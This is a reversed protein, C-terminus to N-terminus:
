HCRFFGMLSNRNDRKQKRETDNSRSRNVVGKTIQQQPQSLRTTTIGIMSVPQRVRHGTPPPSRQTTTPRWVESQQHHGPGYTLSGQQQPKGIGLQNTSPTAKRKQKSSPSPRSETNNTEVHHLGNSASASCVTCEEIRDTLVTRSRARSTRDTIANFVSLRHNCTAYTANATLSSPGMSLHKLYPTATHPAAFQTVTFHSTLTWYCLEVIQWDSERTPKSTASFTRPYASEIM